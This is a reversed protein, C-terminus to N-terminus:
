SEGGGGAAGDGGRAGRTSWYTVSGGTGGSGVVCFLRPAIFADPTMLVNLPSIGLPMFRYTNSNVNEGYYITRAYPELPGHHGPVGHQNESFGSHLNNTDLGMNRAAMYGAGGFGSQTGHNSANPYVSEGMEYSGGGGGGAHDYNTTTSGWQNHWVGGGRGGIGGGAGAYRSQSVSRFLM